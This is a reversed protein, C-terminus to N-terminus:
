VITCQVTLMNTAKLVLTHFPRQFDLVTHHSQMTIFPRVSIVRARVFLLRQEVFPEVPLEVQLIIYNQRVDDLEHFWRTRERAFMKHLAVFEM